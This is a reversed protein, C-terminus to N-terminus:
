GIITMIEVTGEVIRFYISDVGSVCRRYGQAIYFVDEFSEPRSAIEEFRSFAMFYKDAQRDGFVRTGYAHIRKLDEEATSSLRYKAM